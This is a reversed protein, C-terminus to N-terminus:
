VYVITCNNCWRNTELTSLTYILSAFLYLCLIFPVMDDKTPFPVLAYLEQDKQRTKLFKKTLPLGDYDLYVLRKYNSPAEVDTMRITVGYKRHLKEWDTIWSVIKAKRQKAYHGELATVNWAANKRRVAHVLNEIPILEHVGKKNPVSYVPVMDTVYFYDEDKLPVCCDPVIEPITKNDDDDDDEIDSDEDRRRKLVRPAEEDTTYVTFDEM